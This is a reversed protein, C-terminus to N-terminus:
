LGEGAFLYAAGADGHATDDRPVGLILETRGDGDLDVMALGTGLRDYSSSAQWSADGGATMDVKPGWDLLPGHFLMAQGVEYSGPYRPSGVLLDIDGDGDVDGAALAGGTRSGNKEGDFRVVAEELSVEGTLPGTLLFASGPDGSSEAGLAIDGYGDGDLDGLSQLASGAALDREHGLLRAHASNMRQSVGIWHSSPAGLVLYVVGGNTALDNREPAALLLDEYGDGDVDGAGAVRSGLADGAGEPRFRADFLDEIDGAATAPGLLLYAAGGDGYLSPDQSAGLLLDQAGDGDVDGASALSYGLNSSTATGQLVQADGLDGSGTVPGRLLYARGADTGGSDEGYAGVAIEPYGDGDMDGVVAVAQGAYDYADEGTWHPEGQGLEGEGHLPGVAVHVAGADTGGDASQYAGILLDGAGDGDLDGADLSHGARDGSSAGYVAADAGYLDQDGAYRCSEWLGDCDNDIADDCVETAEPNVAPDTDDCDDGDAVGAAPDCTWTTSAPDGHGDGDADVYLALPDAVGPDDDDALGNCDEDVGAEDCVEQADPNVSADADDCDEGGLEATEFGDEDEDPLLLRVTTTASAQEGPTDTVTVRLTHSGVEVGAVVTSARGDPEPALPGDFGEGDIEWSLSLDELHPETTDSVEVVVEVLSGDPLAEDPQPSLISITPSSNPLVTISLQDQGVKAGEDTVKLTITHEGEVLPDSLFRYGSNRLALDGTLGGQPESSFVAVLDGLPTLDDSVMAVFTVPAGAVVSGQDSPSAFAVEPPDNQNSLGSDVNCALLHLLLM